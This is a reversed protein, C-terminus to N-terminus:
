RTWARPHLPVSLQSDRRQSVMSSPAYHETSTCTMKEQYSELGNCDWTSLPNMHQLVKSPELSEMISWLIICRNFIHGGSVFPKEGNFGFLCTKFVRNGEQGLTTPHEVRETSYMGVQDPAQVLIHMGPELVSILISQDFLALKADAAFCGGSSGFLRARNEHETVQFIDGFGNNQQSKMWQWLKDGYTVLQIPARSPVNQIFADDHILGHVIDTTFTDAM